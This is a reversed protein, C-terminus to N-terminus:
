NSFPQTSYGHSPHTTCHVTKKPLLKAHQKNEKNNRLTWCIWNSPRSIFPGAWSLSQFWSSASICRWRWLVTILAQRPRFSRFRGICAGGPCTLQFSLGYNKTDTSFLYSNTWKQTQKWKLYQIIKVTGKINTNREYWFISQTSLFRGQTWLFWRTWSKQRRKEMSFLGLEGWLLPTEARQVNKYGVKLGARISEHREQAPFSLAPYTLLYNWGLDCTEM